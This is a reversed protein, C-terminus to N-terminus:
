YPNIWEVAGVTGDRLLVRAYNGLGSKATIVVTTEGRQWTDNIHLHGTLLLAVDHTDLWSLMAADAYHYVIVVPLTTDVQANLWAWDPARYDMGIIRYGSIDWPWNPIYPFGTDHNGPVARWSSAAGSMATAYDTWESAYGHETCDGSDLIVDADMASVIAALRVKYIYSGGVHADTIHGIVFTDGSPTATPQPTATPCVCVCPPLCEQTARSAPLLALLCALAVILWPLRKV